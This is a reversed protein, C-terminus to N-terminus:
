AASLARKPWGSILRPTSGPIPPVWRRVRAMPLALAMSIHRVPRWISARSASCAPRTALIKGTSLQQFFGQFGGLDNCALRERAHHHGLFADVAYELGTQGFAHAELTPHEVRDEGGGVLGLAHLGEDLLALRVELVVSRARAARWEGRPRPEWLPIYSCRGGPVARGGRPCPGVATHLLLARAAFPTCLVGVPVAREGVPLAGVSPHLLLAGAAFPTCLVGVPVAREGCALSGCRHTPAAGGGRVAHGARGVAQCCCRPLWMFIPKIPSPLM